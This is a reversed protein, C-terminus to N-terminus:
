QLFKIMLVIWNTMYISRVKYAKTNIGARKRKKGLEEDHDSIPEDNEDISFDSDVM